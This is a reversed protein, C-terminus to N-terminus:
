VFLDFVFGLFLMLCHLGTPLFPKAQRLFPVLEFVVRIIGFYTVKLQVETM